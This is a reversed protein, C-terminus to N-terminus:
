PLQGRSLHPSVQSLIPQLSLLDLIIIFPFQLHELLRAVVERPQGWVSGTQRQLWDISFNLLLYQYEDLVLTLTLSVFQQIRLYQSQHLGNEEHLLQDVALSFASYARESPRFETMEYHLEALRCIHLARKQVKLIRSSTAESKFESHLQQSFFTLFHHPTVLTVRWQLTNLIRMEMEKIQAFDFM